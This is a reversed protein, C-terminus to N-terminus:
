NSGILNCPGGTIEFHIYYLCSNLGHCFASLTTYDQALSRYRHCVVNVIVVVATAPREEMFYDIFGDHVIFQNGNSVSACGTQDLGGNPYFDLHGSIQYLGFRDGDTHIADVFRADSPDLRM